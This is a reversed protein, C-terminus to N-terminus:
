TSGVDPDRALAKFAREVQGKKLRMEAAISRISLGDHRLTRVRTLLTDRDM